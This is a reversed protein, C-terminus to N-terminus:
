KVGKSTLFPGYKMDTELIHKNLWNQLFNMVEISLNTKGSQFEAQVQLVKQTMARHKRVHEDYEPYGHEKMLAEEKSFHSQTYYILDSLIKALAQKGQGKTMAQDLDNIMSVLKQHQVDIDFIGVKYRDSWVLQAM